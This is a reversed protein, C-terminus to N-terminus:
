FVTDKFKLEECPVLAAELRTEMLAVVIATTKTEHDKATSCISYAITQLCSPVTDPFAVDFPAPKGGAIEVLRVHLSWAKHAATHDAVSAFNFAKMAEGAFALQALKPFLFATPLPIVPAGDGFFSYALWENVIYKDIIAASAAVLTNLQELKIGGMQAVVASWDIPKGSDPSPFYFEACAQAVPRITCNTFLGLSKDLVSTCYARLVDGVEGIIASRLKRWGVYYDVQPSSPFISDNAPM